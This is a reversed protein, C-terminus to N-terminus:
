LVAPRPDAPFPVSEVVERFNNLVFLYLYFRALSKDYRVDSFERVGSACVVRALEGASAQSLWVDTVEKRLGRLYRALNTLCFELVLIYPSKDIVYGYMRLLNPHERRVRQGQDKGEQIARMMEIESLM